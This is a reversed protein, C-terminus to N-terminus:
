ENFRIEQSINEEKENKFYNYIIQTLRKMNM